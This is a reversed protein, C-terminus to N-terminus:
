ASIKFSIVETEPEYDDDTTTNVPVTAFMEVLYSVYYLCLILLSLPDKSKLVFTVCKFLPYISFLYYYNSARLLDSSYGPVINPLM